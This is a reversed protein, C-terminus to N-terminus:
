SLISTRGRNRRDLSSERDMEITRSYLGLASTHAEALSWVSTRRITRRSPSMAQRSYRVNHRSLQTLEM